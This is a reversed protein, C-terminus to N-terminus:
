RNLKTKTQFQSNQPMKLMLQSTKTLDPLKFKSTM